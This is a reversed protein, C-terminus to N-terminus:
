CSSKVYGMKGCKGYRIKIIFFCRRSVVDVDFGVKLIYISLNCRWLEYVDLDKFINVFM